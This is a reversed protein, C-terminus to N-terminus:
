SRSAARSSPSSPWWSRTPACRRKWGACGSRSPRCGAARPGEAMRVLLKLRLAFERRWTGHQDFQENFSTGVTDGTFRFIADGWESGPSPRLIEPLEPLFLHRAPGPPHMKVPRRVRPMAAPATTSWPKWSSTAARARPTPFIACRAAARAGGRAGAGRARGCAAKRRAPPQHAVGAADPRIGALFLRKRRM